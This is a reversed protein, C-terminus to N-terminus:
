LLHVVSCLLSPAQTAAAPGRLDEEFAGLLSHTMPPQSADWLYFCVFLLSSSWSAAEM